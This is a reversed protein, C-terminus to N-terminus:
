GRTKFAACRPSNFGRYVTVAEPNDRLVFALHQNSEKLEELQSQTLAQKYFGIWTNHISLM